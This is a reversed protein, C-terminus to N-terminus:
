PPCLFVPDDFFPDLPPNEPFACECTYAPTCTCQSNERAIYTSQYCSRGGGGGQIALDTIDALSGRCDVVLLVRIRRTFESQSPFTYQDWPLGNYPCPPNASAPYLASCTGSSHDVVVRWFCNALAQPYGPKWQIGETAGSNTNVSGLVYQNVVTNGRMETINECKGEVTNFIARKTAYADIRGRSIRTNGDHCTTGATGCGIYWYCGTFNCGGVGTAACAPACAGSRCQTGPPCCVGNCCVTDCCSGACCTQATTCCTGGAGGCCCKGAQGPTCDKCGCCTKCCAM